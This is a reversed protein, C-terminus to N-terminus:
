HCLVRFAGLSEKLINQENALPSSKGVSSYSSVNIAKKLIHCGAAAEPAPHITSISLESGSHRNRDASSKSRCVPSELVWSHVVNTGSFGGPQLRKFMAMATMMM